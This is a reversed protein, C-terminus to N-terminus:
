IGKPTHAPDGDLVIRGPSLGIERSFPMKIWGATQCCCVRASFQPRHGEQPIGDFAIYGGHWTEDQYM